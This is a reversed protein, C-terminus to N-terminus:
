SVLGSTRSGGSLARWARSFESQSRSLSVSRQQVMEPGEGNARGHSHAQALPVFVFAIRIPPSETVTGGVVVRM